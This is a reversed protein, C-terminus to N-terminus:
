DMHKKRMVCLPYPRGTSSKGKDIGKLASRSDSAGSLLAEVKLKYECVSSVWENDLALRIRGRKLQNYTFLFKLPLMSTLANHSPLRAVEPGSVGARQM